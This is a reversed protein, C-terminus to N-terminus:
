HSDRALEFLLRVLRVESERQGSIHGVCVKLQSVADGSRQLPSIPFLALHFHRVKCHDFPFSVLQLSTTSESHLSFLNIKDLNVELFKEPLSKEQCM